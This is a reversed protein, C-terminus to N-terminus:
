CNPLTNFGGSGGGAIADACSRWILSKQKAYKYVRYFRKFPRMPDFTKSDLAAAFESTPMPYANLRDMATGCIGPEITFAAAGSDLHAPYYELKM